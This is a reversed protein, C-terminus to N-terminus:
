VVSGHRKLVVNLVGSEAAKQLLLFRILETQGMGEIARMTEFVRWEMPSLMVAVRHDGEVSSRLRPLKDPVLVNRPLRHGPRVQKLADVWRDPLWLSTDVSERDSLVFDVLAKADATTYPPGMLQSLAGLDCNKTIEM